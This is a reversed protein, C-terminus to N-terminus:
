ENFLFKKEDIELILTTGAESINGSMGTKAIQEGKRVNQNRKVFISKLNCYTITIGISSYNVTIYTGNEYDFGIDQVIGDDISYLVTNEPAPSFYNIENKKLYEQSNLSFFICLVILFTILKKM